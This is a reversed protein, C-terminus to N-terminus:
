IDLTTQQYSKRVTQVWIPGKLIHPGSRSGIQKVSLHYARFFKKFFNIKFFLYKDGLTMQHNRKCVTQVWILGSLVNPRNQIWDTQCESSLGLLIKRFHQNQFFDASSLLMLFNGPPLYNIYAAAEENSRQSASSSM